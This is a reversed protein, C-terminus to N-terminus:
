VAKNKQAQTGKGIKKKLKEREAIMEACANIGRTLNNKRRISVADCRSEKTPGIECIDELRPDFRM